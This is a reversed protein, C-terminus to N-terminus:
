SEAALLLRLRGPVASSAVVRHQHRYEEVLAASEDQGTTTQSTAFEDWLTPAVPPAAVEEAWLPDGWTEEPFAHALIARCRHLDLCRGVRVGASLLLPAVERTDAWVWRPADAAERAPVVEPLQQRD